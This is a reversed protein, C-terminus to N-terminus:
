PVIVVGGHAYVVVENGGFNVVHGAGIVRGGVEADCNSSLSYPLTCVLKMGNDLTLEIATNDENDGPTDSAVHKSVVVGSVASTVPAAEFYGIVDVIIRVSSGVGGVNTIQFDTYVNGPPSPGVCPQHPDPYTTSNCLGVLIENSANELATYNVRSYISSPDAWQAQVKLHGNTSPSVAVINVNVAEASAPVKCDSNGGQSGPLYSGRVHVNLTDDAALSGLAHNTDLIRCPDIAKYILPAGTAPPSQAHAHNLTAIVALCFVLVFSVVTRIRNCNVM